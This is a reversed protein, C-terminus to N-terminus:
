FGLCAEEYDWKGSLEGDDLYKKIHGYEIVPPIDVAILRPSDSIESGCGMAKLEQRTLAVLKENAFWIRITSHQSASLLEDAYLGDDTKKASMVDKYAVGKAYFPINDIMYGEECPTVWISEVEMSDSDNSLIEFFMKTQTRM